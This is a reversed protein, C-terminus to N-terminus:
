QWPGNAGLAVKASGFPVLTQGSRAFSVQFWVRNSQGNTMVVDAWVIVQLDNPYTAPGFEDVVNGNKGVQGSIVGKAMALMETQRTIAGASTTPASSQSDNGCGTLLVAAAAALIITRM